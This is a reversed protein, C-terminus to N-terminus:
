APRGAPVCMRRGPAHPQPGRWPRCLSPPPSAPRTGTSYSRLALRFLRPKARGPPPSSAPLGAALPVLRAARPKAELRLGAGFLRRQGSIQVVTVGASALGSVRRLILPSPGPSRRRGASSLNGPLETQASARCVAAARLSALPPCPLRASRPRRPARPTLVRPPPAARLLRAPIGPGAARAWRARRLAAQAARGGGERTQREAREGGGGRAPGLEARGAPSM